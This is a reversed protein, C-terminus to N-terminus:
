QARPLRTQPAPLGLKQAKIIAETRSRVGLKLLLHSIHFEVTKVSITLTEAVEQNRQGAALLQLIERERPTLQNLTNDASLDTIEELATGGRAVTRVATLIDDGTASKRLYGQIGIQLLARTYGLDDYGTLILIATQPATERVTQAVLVGSIDPLHVDLLLVDPAEEAVLRLATTGDGATAIVEIDGAEELLTQTGARLMPHDDVILVRICPNAAPETM